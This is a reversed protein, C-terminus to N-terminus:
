PTIKNAHTTKTSRHTQYVRWVLAIKERRNLRIRGKTVTYRKQKARELISRYLELAVKVGLQYSPHLDRISSEAHDYYTEARNALATLTRRLAAQNKGEALDKPSLGQARMVSLPLYIRGLQGDATVDRIINTYQMAIGLQKAGELTAKRYGGLVRASLIGVIGAVMYSYRDLEQLTTPQRFTIDQAVGRLVTEMEVIPLKHSQMTDFVALWIDPAIEAPQKTILAQRMARIQAIKESKNLKSADVIDDATRCFAYLARISRRTDLDFLLSALWFTSSAQRTVKRCAVYSQHLSLDAM